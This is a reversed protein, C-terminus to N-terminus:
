VELTRRLLQAFRPDKVVARAITRQAASVVGRAQLSLFIRAHDSARRDLIGCPDEQVELHVVLRYAAWGPLSVFTGDLGASMGSAPRFHMPAGDTVDTYEYTKQAECGPHNSDDLLLSIPQLTHEAAWTCDAETRAATAAM